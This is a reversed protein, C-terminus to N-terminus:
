QGHGHLLCISLRALERVRFWGPKARTHVDFHDNMHYMYNSGCVVQKLILTLLSDNVAPGRVSQLLHNEGKRQRM